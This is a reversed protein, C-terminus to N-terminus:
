YQTGSVEKVMCALCNEFGRQMIEVPDMPRRRKGEQLGQSDAEIGKKRWRWGEERGSVVELYAEAGAWWKGVEVECFHTLLRSWRGADASGRGSKAWGGVGDAVCMGDSRVFYADEGISVSHFSAPAQVDPLAFSRPRPPPSDARSSSPRNLRVPREKALGSAGHHFVLSSTYSQSASSAAADAYASLLHPSQSQASFYLPNLLNQETSSPNPPPLATSLSTHPEESSTPTPPRNLSSPFSPPLPPDINGQFFAQGPESPGSLGLSPLFADLGKGLLPISIDPYPAYGYAERSIPRSPTAYGRRHRLHQHQHQPQQPHQHSQTLLSRAPFIPSRSGKPQYSQVIPEGGGSGGPADWSPVLTVYGQREVAAAATASVSIAASPASAPALALGALAQSLAWSASAAAPLGLDRFAQLQERRGSAAAQHPSVIPALQLAHPAGSSAIPAHQSLSRVVKKALSPKPKSM